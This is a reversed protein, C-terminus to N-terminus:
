SKIPITLKLLSFKSFDVHIFSEFEGLQLSSGEPFVLARRKRSLIRSGDDDHHNNNNFCDDDDTCQSDVIGNVLCYILIVITIAIFHKAFYIKTEM